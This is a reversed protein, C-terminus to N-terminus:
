IESLRNGEMVEDPGGHISKDAADVSGDRRVRFSRVDSLREGFIELTVVWVKGDLDFYSSCSSNRGDPFQVCVKGNDDVIWSREPFVKGGWKVYVTGNPLFYAGGNDWVQTKGSLYTTVEDTGLRKAGANLLQQEQQREYKSTTACALLGFSVAVVLLIKSIRLYM